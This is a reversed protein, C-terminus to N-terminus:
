SRHLQPAPFPSLVQNTEQHYFCHFTVFFFLLFASKIPNLPIHIYIYIYTYQIGSGEPLSVYSNFMAMSITLKGMLSLSTGYNKTRKGSPLLYFRTPPKSSNQM